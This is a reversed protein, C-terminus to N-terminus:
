RLSVCRERAATSFSRTEAMRILAGLAGLLDM